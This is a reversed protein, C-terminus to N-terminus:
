PFGDIRRRLSNTLSRQTPDICTGVGPLASETVSAKDGLGVAAGTCSCSTKTAGLLKTEKTSAFLRVHAISLM